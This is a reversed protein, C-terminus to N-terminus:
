FDSREQEQALQMKLMAITEKVAPMDQQMKDQATRNEELAEVKSKSEM